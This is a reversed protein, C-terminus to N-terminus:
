ILILRSIRMSSNAKITFSRFYPTGKIAADSSNQISERVLLDLIFTHENQLVQLASSGSFVSAGENIKLEKIDFM